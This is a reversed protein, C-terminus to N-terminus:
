RGHTRLWEEVEKLTYWHIPRALYQKRTPVREGSRYKRARAESKRELQEPRRARCRQRAREEQFREEFEAAACVLSPPLAVSFGEATAFLTRRGHRGRCVVPTGAPLLLGSGLRVARLTRLPCVEVDDLSSCNM